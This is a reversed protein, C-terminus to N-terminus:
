LMGLQAVSADIEAERRARTNDHQQEIEKKKILTAVSDILIVHFVRQHNIHAKSQQNNWLEEGVEGGDELFHGGVVLRLFPAFFNVFAASSNVSSSFFIRMIQQRFESFSSDKIIDFLFHIQKNLSDWSFKM